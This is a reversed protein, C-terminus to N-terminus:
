MKSQSTFFHNICQWGVGMGSGRGEEGKEGEEGRKM